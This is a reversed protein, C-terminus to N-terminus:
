QLILGVPVQFTTPDIQETEISSALLSDGLLLSMVTQAFRRGEPRQMLKCLLQTYDDEKTAVKYFISRGSASM